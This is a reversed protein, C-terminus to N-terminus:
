RVEFKVFIPNELEPAGVFLEFRQGMVGGPPAPFYLMDHIWGAKPVPVTERVIRPEGVNPSLNSEYRQYTAFRNAVIGELEQIRQDQDLLAYGEILERPGAAPYRKGQSDVLTFSERSLTIMRLGNNAFVVELPIFAEGGRDRTALTDVILTAISGDEMWAHTSLKFDLDDARRGEVPVRGACAATGLLLVTLGTAFPRNM